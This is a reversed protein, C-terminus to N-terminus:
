TAEKKKEKGPILLLIFLYIGLLWLSRCPFNGRRLPPSRIINRVFFFKKKREDPLLMKSPQFIFYFSSSTKERSEVPSIRHM